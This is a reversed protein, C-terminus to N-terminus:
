TRGETALQWGLVTRVKGGQDPHDEVLGRKLLAQWVKKAANGSLCPHVTQHRDWEPFVHDWDAWGDAKAHKQIAALMRDQAPTLTKARLDRLAAQAEPREGYFKRLIQGAQEFELFWLDLPDRCPGIRPLLPRMRFRRCQCGAVRCPYGRRKLDHAAKPDGCYCPRAKM